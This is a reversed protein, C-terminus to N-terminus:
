PTNVALVEPRGTYPVLASRLAAPVRAPVTDTNPGRMCAIRQRGRAVLNEAGDAVRVYDFSFQIQTQTLEELRMRVSLEDFATIEAFFECEVKLTFLKLDQQLEVLVEPAKEKLFMERCRGQWRLYNVYYVNGVLNTEEFGVTHRIEYYGAMDTTRRERCCPSSWRRRARRQGHDGLHRHAGRGDSLVVWGEPEIRDLTLANATVGPRACASWRAGCGPPPSRRPRAPRRPWWTACPSSSSASCPRGTRRTASPPSRSTAARAPRGRHRGADPRRRPVRVGRRRRGGAARGAPVARRGPPRAGPEGGARDAGAPRGGRGPRDGPEAGGRRHADRRPGEGRRAGPLVRAALAGVPGRRGEQAGGAAVPGGLAGGPDRGPDARRRRLRLHRRGAATGPRGDRRVRHGPRRPERPLAERHGAAAADRRARLVPHLADGRGPHRPRRARAGPLPVRRVVAGAHHHVAGRGRAPREGQPLGAAAPVAQGPVPSRRVARGGPGGARGATRLRRHPRRRPRDHRAAGPAPLAAARPLPRHRVRDGRQPHRGLGDGRGPVARGAPRHDLRRAAGRDPAPVGCGRAAAGRRPRHARHGGPDDGGHRDGGPVAPRGGAPPRGPVPRQGLDPGGRHDARRGPLAGPDPRHVPDAAAGRPGAHPDAPRGGPRQGGAGARGLPRGAGPAAGRARQGALDAHHGRADPGRGCRAERGHRRRVVGVVGARAGPGGPAPTRLRRDARDDLRERDLLAGRRAPGGPRHHQRVHGAAQDPGRRGGRAGGAPRRDEAGADAPGGRRDPEGPRGARQPGRRAARRHGPRPRVRHARRGARVQEASTVDAREYRVDIGADAMRAINTSVEEDAAPDARGLLALKAGSDAAMALACEATIGKAGGTVLLVDGATLPSAGPAPADPLARLVPVTRTGDADYRVESFGSTAAVDGVVRGVAAEVEGPTHPAADALGIVTTPISPHELHLTRALGSAGLDQQVVVFRTGPSAEIAQRAAQLFLEVHPEGSAPLCLLVGNGVAADVLAARLREALPHGAPAVLQWGGPSGTGIALSSRPAPVLDVSFPRVWPAYGPVENPGAAGDQATEELQDIMDALEGLTVTAFNATAALAPRGLERTAENVIQGVTISSLHLDDLPHTQATVTELPLEVRDAALRRLVDLTATAGDGSRGSQEGEPAAGAQPEADVALGAAIDPATECPSSLFTFEADEAIPRVVREAFLATPDVDAGLAFAAGVAGLLPALSASDTDLALVLKEPAAQSVLGSLVRGPGVELVLDADAAATAAAQAFRVPRVIQEVLLARLDAGAELPAGTVTSVVPRHPTGFEFEALRQAMADAAPRVLPSHFAHSVNLRTATLGRSRADACVADVDTAPGAIVTQAPGNYGAIVVDRGDVLAEVTAPDASLGAMAGGAESARAMVQGRVAALRLLDTGGLAGAWSLATLEGLSHGVAIDADIGLTHLVRLGAVSGAVIRPQAVETAVHDGGTPVADNAFINEAAHFRRRIAGVADRGSGQGPFLYAIRPATTRHDLYVGDAPAILTTGGGALEDAIRTLKRAADAPNAAVVAARYPGGTRSVALTGALDTLEAFALKAALGALRRVRDRLEGASQADVLLLDNDQRGAVLSRTHRCLETRRERGPAEELAIHSNIGGFGMASVGARVPTDSPWLAAEGPVFLAADPGTLKPHPDFHGTGPPIVQHHVALTAKILGAIGAAAKTHGFNGKVTGLAAPAATPDAERRAGSLAEIETADGVATGTGHGEFYSVSEVGYGARGYARTLALQHGAAEPRTIGGKGDSSIGWGTISAYIRLGRALAESERMLVVMGCGEGPWFGNSDKDYVKMEGTALAGTKAFGIVEFPDISLDVGGALAVDLDGDVLAKAATAISLLSSSCAGDVTFGGGALDFYNCIRGAITNALGGALTDEDIAPFPAKYQPELDRLFAGTEEESWGKAALAAAVTRRVYPWRLRMINARSFEGTLSNGLVVGTAKRPLGDAFPFGADALATAAVDLALWHTLDTSRYTSGAIKYKVRDFEFDRLVAARTSYFRDPAHPDPSWYDAQNMREDPLRRFARRGALVNEWLQEPSTADPYRLGIGVIAIRENSM